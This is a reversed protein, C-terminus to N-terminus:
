DLAKLLLDEWEPLLRETAWQIDRKTVRKLHYAFIDYAVSSGDVKAEYRETTLGLNIALLAELYAAQAERNSTNFPGNPDWAEPVTLSPDDQLIGKVDDDLALNPWKREEDSAVVYHLIEHILGRKDQKPVTITDETQVWSDAEFTVKKGTITKAVLILANM